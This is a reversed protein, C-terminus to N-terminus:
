PENPEQLKAIKRQLATRWEGLCRNVWGDTDTDLGPLSKDNGYIECMALNVERMLDGIGLVEELAMGMSATLIDGQTVVGHLSKGGELADVDNMKDDAMKNGERRCERMMRMSATMAAGQQDSGIM